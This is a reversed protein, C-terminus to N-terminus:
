WDEQPSVPLPLLLKLNATKKSIKIGPLYLASRSKDIKYNGEKSQKLTEIVDAADRMFFDTADIYIKGNEEKEIKFGWLVSTAFADDVAKVEDENQSSARYDYNPQILLLKNGAKVFKVM